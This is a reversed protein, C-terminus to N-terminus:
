PVFEVNSTKMVGDEEVISVRLRFDRPQPETQAVNTVYTRAALLVTGGSDTESELGAEIIEGETAVNAEVVVSVFPDIRGDFEREFEGTATALIRDIDDRATEPTISTLNLVTQRAAQLYDQRQADRADAARLQFFLYGAAAGLGVIVVLAVALTITRARSKPPAQQVEARETMDAAADPAAGPPGAPRMARRRTRRGATHEDNEITNM